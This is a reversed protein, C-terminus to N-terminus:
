SQTNAWTTPRKMAPGEMFRIDRGNTSVFPADSNVAAHRVTLEGYISIRVILIKECHPQKQKSLIGRPSNPIRKLFSLKKRRFSFVGNRKLTSESRKLYHGSLWGCNM